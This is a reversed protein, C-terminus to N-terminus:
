PNAQNLPTSLDTWFQAAPRSAISRGLRQSWYRESGFESRWAWLRRTTFHLSHEYTVGIAGHVAHAIAAGATAAEGAVIKASAVPTEPLGNDAFAFAADAAILALSTHEALVALQHQIAQFKAIPRGFQSRDEAYRLSLDLLHQLGGAMQAARVLAGGRLLADAPLGDPLPAAAVPAVGDLVFDDCPERGVNLGPTMPLSAREFLMVTPAEGAVVLIHSAHRGFAAGALRGSAKGGAIELHPTAITTPGAPIDMGAKDMLWNAVVTEGFPIPAAYRGAARFMTFVDAWAAGAGCAAESVLAHTFGADEVMRWLDAAWLGEDETRILLEADVASSLLREISQELMDRM